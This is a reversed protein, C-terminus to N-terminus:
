VQEFDGFVVGLPHAPQGLVELELIGVLFDDVQVAVEVDNQDMERANEDGRWGMIVM